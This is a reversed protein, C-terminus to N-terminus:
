RGYTQVELDIEDGLVSRLLVLGRERDQEYTFVANVKTLVIGSDDLIDTYAEIKEAQIGAAALLGELYRETEAQVVWETQEQVYDSLEERTNEVTSGPLSIEWNSSFVSSILSSLLALVALGRVFHVMANEPCLRGVAEAAILVVCVAAANQLVTNM